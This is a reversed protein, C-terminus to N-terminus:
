DICRRRPIIPARTPNCVPGQNSFVALVLNKRLPGENKGAPQCWIVDRLGDRFNSWVADVDCTTDLSCWTAFLGREDQLKDGGGAFGEVANLAGGEEEATRM